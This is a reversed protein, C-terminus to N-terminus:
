ILSCKKLVIIISIILQRFYFVLSFSKIGNTKNAATVNATNTRTVNATNATSLSMVCLVSLIAIVQKM